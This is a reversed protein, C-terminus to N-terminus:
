YYFILPTYQSIYSAKIGLSNVQTAQSRQQLLTCFCIGMSCVPVVKQSMFGHIRMSYSSNKFWAHAASPQAYRTEQFQKPEHM